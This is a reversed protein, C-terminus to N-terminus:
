LEVREVAGKLENNHKSRGNPYRKELYCAKCINGLKGDGASYFFETDAPWWEQCGSCYKELDCDENIRTPM